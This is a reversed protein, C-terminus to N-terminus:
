TLEKIMSPSGCKMMEATNWDLWPDNNNKLTWVVGEAEKETIPGMNVNLKEPPTANFHFISTPDPQNLMEKLYIGWHTDQENATLLIYGNKDKIPVNSNSRADTLERIIRHLIRTNKKDAAEQAEECM